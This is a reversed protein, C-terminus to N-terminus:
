NAMARNDELDLHERRVAYTRSGGPLEENGGRGGMGTGGLVLWRLGEDRAVGEGEERGVAFGVM